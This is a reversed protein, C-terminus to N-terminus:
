HHWFRSTPTPAPAFGSPQRLVDCLKAHHGCLSHGPQDRHRQVYLEAIQRRRRLIEFKKGTRAPV